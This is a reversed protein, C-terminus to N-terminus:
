TLSGTCYQIDDLYCFVGDLGAIMHQFTQGSNRLSFPMRTYEFLSFPTIIATKKIDSVQMPIQYYGQKLDLKSFIKCGGLCAALDDM